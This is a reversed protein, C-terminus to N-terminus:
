PTKQLNLNGPAVQPKLGGGIVADALLKLNLNMGSSASGPDFGGWGGRAAVIMNLSPIITVVEFGFHGNAQYTDLPADPWHLDSTTGVNGNFWWNFGYIGPGFATQDSGGGITGVGLYDSDGSSTRPLNNPVDPKVYNDFFSEPLLQTGNWNGKNLWFWGIRAFDRVSADTGYSGRSGFISGDEFQLAGLREKIAADLSKGFINELNKTYLSIAYDNYAWAEGPAEGRAYGSMMNALHRFTMPQDKANLNWGWDGVRDDVSGLTNESVAFFLLTSLIPKVASAWDKNLAPNGWCRVMYGNRVICGDGGLNNAFEDLKAADLGVEAPTKFQWSAGPFNVSASGSIRQIHVAVENGLSTPTSWTQDGSAVAVNAQMVSFGTVPDYWRFDYTGASMNSLGIQGSLNSAYAIYSDTPAALVYETGGFALDDRPAMENFSTSEMFSVLRGLDELDSLATNIVDMGFVMVYAGGMAVAWAKKRATAGTGWSVAETMNNNYKGDARNWATVMGDHLASASGVNYQIAYQDINPDDAFESFSLGSLKHVAIVHDHKDAGRIEAAINSVREPTYTEQYEEAVVWILHKHHEFRNVITEIFNREAPGVHDGSRWFQSLWYTLKNTFGRKRKNSIANRDWVTTEDDYFFFYIVIGNNDMETFWTEWQDLVATNIGKAPDNDIFPNHTADGDGGHSRIAQLYISNAGTTKLKDILAQQDGNRTGDANRTGRYLFNEPDGPGALFHPGGGYYKLWAPNKSDVVIQGSLPAAGAGASFAIFIVALAIAFTWRHGRSLNIM